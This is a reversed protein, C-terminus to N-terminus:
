RAGRTMRTVADAGARAMAHMVFTTVVLVGFMMAIVILPFREDLGGVHTGVRMPDTFVEWSNLRAFRGLYVGIACAGHLAVM